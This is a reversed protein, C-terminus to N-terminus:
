EEEFRWEYGFAYGSSILNNIDKFSGFSNLLNGQSDYQNIVKKKVKPEKIKPTKIVPKKVKYKKIAQVSQKRKAINEKWQRIYVAAEDWLGDRYEYPLFSAIFNNIEEKQALTSIAYPPVTYLNDNIKELTDEVNEEIIIFRLGHKDAVEQKIKMIGTEEDDQHYFAGNFEVVIKEEPLYIDFECGDIKYQHISNKIGLYLMVEFRSMPYKCLPCGIKYRLSKLNTSFKHESNIECQFDFKDTIKIKDPLESLIKIKREACFDILEQRNTDKVSKRLLEIPENYVEKIIFRTPSNQRDIKMYSALHRLQSVKSQGAKIPLGLYEMMKKYPMPKDILDKAKEIVTQELKLM